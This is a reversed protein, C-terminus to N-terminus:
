WTKGFAKAILYVDGIDVKGDSNIDAAFDWRRHGPRSGFAKALVFVDEIGVRHNNNIDEPRQASGLALLIFHLNATQSLANYPSVPAFAHKENPWRAWYKTSYIYWDPHGSMPIYPLDRGVIDFIQNAVAQPDAATDLSEILAELESNAYGSYHNWVGTWCTFLQTYREYLDGNIGWHMCYDMFDYAHTQGEGTTWATYQDWTTGRAEFPIDLDESITAAVVVDIAWVDTWDPMDIITWPDGVNPYDSRGLMVNIGPVAPLQDATNILTDWNALWEGVTHKVTGIVIPIEDATAWLPGIWPHASYYDHINQIWAKIAAVNDGKTYWNGNPWSALANDISGDPAIYYCHEKLINKAKAVDRQILYKDRNPYNKLYANAVADDKPILFANPYQIDTGYIHYLSGDVCYNSSAASNAPYDMVLALAWHLWSECIPWKFYNPVMLLASKDPFYPPDKFYTNLFEPWTERGPVYSGDWDILGEKVMAEIEINSYGVYYGVYNPAPKRNFVSIGWWNDNRKMYTQKKDETIYWPLYMGSAVRWKAPFNPNSWDNTFALYDGTTANIDMWIDKPVILFGRTIVRYVIKSWAYSPNLHLRFVRDDVIEFETVRDQLANMWTAAAPSNPFAGTLFYSYEVDETTIDRYKEPVYTGAQWGAWDAIKVWYIGKRLTVTLITGTDDWEPPKEALWGFDQGSAVDTGFLPEYMISTDWGMGDNVRIPNFNTLGPWYGAGWIVEERKPLTVQASAPSVNSIFINM